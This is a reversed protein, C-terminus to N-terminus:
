VITEIQSYKNVFDSFLLRQTDYNDYFHHLVPVGLLVTTLNFTGIHPQLRAQGPQQSDSHAKCALELSLWTPISDTRWLM